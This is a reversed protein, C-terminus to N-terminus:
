NGRGQEKVYMNHLRTPDELELKNNLRMTLTAVTTDLDIAIVHYAQNPRYIRTRYIPVPKSTPNVPTKVLSSPGVELESEIEVTETVESLVAPTPPEIIREVAWSEPVAWTPSNSGGYLATNTGGAARLQPVM